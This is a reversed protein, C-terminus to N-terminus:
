WEEPLGPLAPLQIEGERDLSILVECLVALLRWPGSREDAHEATLWHSSAVYVLTGEENDTIQRLEYEVGEPHDEFVIYLEKITSSGGHSLVVDPVAACLFDAAASANRMFSSILAESGEPGFGGGVSIWNGPM